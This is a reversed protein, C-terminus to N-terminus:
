QFYKNRINFSCLSLCYATSLLLWGLHAWGRQKNCLLPVKGNLTRCYIHSFGYIGASKTVNASSIWLPFTGNKHLSILYYVLELVGACQMLEVHVVWPTCLLCILPSLSPKFIKPFSIPQLAHIFFPSHCNKWKKYYHFLKKFGLKLSCYM